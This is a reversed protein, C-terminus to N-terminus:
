GHGMEWKRESETATSGTSKSMDSHYTSELLESDHRYGERTRTHSRDDGCKIRYPIGRILHMLDGCIETDEREDVEIHPMPHHLSFLYLSKEFFIESLLCKLIYFDRELDYCSVDFSTFLDYERCAIEDIRYSGRDAYRSCKAGVLV